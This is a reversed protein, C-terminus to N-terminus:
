YEYFLFLVSCATQVLSSVTGQSSTNSYSLYGYLVHIYIYIYVTPVRHIGIAQTQPLRYYLPQRSHRWFELHYYIGLSHGRPLHCDGPCTKTGWGRHLCVDWVGRTWALVGIIVGIWYWPADSALTVGQFYPQHERLTSGPPGQKPIADQWGMTCIPFQPWLAACVYRFWVSLSLCKWILVVSSEKWM